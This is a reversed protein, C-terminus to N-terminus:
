DQKQERAKQMKHLVPQVCRPYILSSLAITFACLMIYSIGATNISETAELLLNAFPPGVIGCFCDMQQLLGTFAGLEHKKVFSYVIGTGIPRIAGAVVMSLICSALMFTTAESACLQVLRTVFIVAVTGSIMNGTQIKCLVAMVLPALAAGCVVGLQTIFQVQGLMHIDADFRFVMSPMLVATWVHNHFSLLFSWMLYWRGPSTTLAENSVFNWIPYTKKPAQVTSVLPVLVIFLVMSRAVQM